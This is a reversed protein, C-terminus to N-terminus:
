QRQHEEYRLRIQTLVAYRIARYDNREDSSKSQISANMAPIPDDM